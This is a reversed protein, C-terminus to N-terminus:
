LNKNYYLFIFLLNALNIQFDLLKSHISQLMKIQKIIKNFFFIIKFM